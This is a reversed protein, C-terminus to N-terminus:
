HDALPNSKKEATHLRRYQVLMGQFDPPTGNASITTAHSDLRLVYMLTPDTGRVLVDHAAETLRGLLLYALALIRLM